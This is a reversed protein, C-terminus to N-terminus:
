KTAKWLHENRGYIGKITHDTKTLSGETTLNTIARRVSTIPYKEKLLKFIQSPSLTQYRSFLDLIIESQKQSKEQYKILDDSTVNATVHYATSFLDTQSM